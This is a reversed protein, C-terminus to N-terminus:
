ILRYNRNEGPRWGSIKEVALLIRKRLSLNRIRTDYEFNWNRSAIRERMVAPHTGTFVSLSDVKSFDFIEQEGYERELYEDSHWLKRAQKLKRLQAEPHKVWGYHYMQAGSHKVNLKKENKRFGQADKWSRINRDNRIIRIENRYWDRSDAYYNYNGYFHVYGFLLGEVRKDELNREMQHKITEHFKEHLCEDAQIYICWDAQTSVADLAKNTEIALM